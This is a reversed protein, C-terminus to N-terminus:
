NTQLAIEEAQAYSSDIEIKAPCSPDCSLTVRQTASLWSGNSAVLDTTGGSLPPAPLIIGAMFTIMGIKKPHVKVQDSSSNEESIFNTSAEKVM